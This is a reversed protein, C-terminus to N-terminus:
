GSGYHLAKIIYKKIEKNGNDSMLFCKETKEKKTDMQQVEDVKQSAALM